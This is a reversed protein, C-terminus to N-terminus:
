LQHPSASAQLTRSQDQQRANIRSRLAALQRVYPERRQMHRSRVTHLILPKLDFRATSRVRAVEFEFEADINSLTSCLASILVMMRDHNAAEKPLMVEGRTDVPM